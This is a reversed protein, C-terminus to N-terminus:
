GACASSAVSGGGLAGWSRVVPQVDVRVLLFRPGPRAGGEIRVAAQATVARTDADDALVVAALHAPLWGSAAPAGTTCGTLGLYFGSM